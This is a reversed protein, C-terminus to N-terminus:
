RSLVDAENGDGDGEPQHEQEADVNESYENLASRIVARVVKSEPDEVYRRRMLLLEAQELANRLVEGQRIRVRGELAAVADCLENMAVDFNADDVDGADWLRAVARAAGIVTM